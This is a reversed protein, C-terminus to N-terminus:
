AACNKKGTTEDDTAPRILQSALLRMGLSLPSLARVVMEGSPRDAVCIQRCLCVRLNEADSRCVGGAVRDRCYNGLGVREFLSIAVPPWHRDWCM